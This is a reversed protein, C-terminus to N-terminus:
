TWFSKHTMARVCWDPVPAFEDGDTGCLVVTGVIEEGEVTMNPAKGNIRGEEDFILVLGHLSEPTLTEIYGGVAQQFGELTNHIDEVRWGEGPEKILVRM